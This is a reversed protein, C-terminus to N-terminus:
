KAKAVGTEPMGKRLEGTWERVFARVEDKRVQNMKEFPRYTVKRLVPRLIMYGDKTWVVSVEGDRLLEIREKIWGQLEQFAVTSVQVKDPFTQQIEDFPKGAKAQEQLENALVVKEQKDRDSYRVALSEVVREEPMTGIKRDIFGSIALYRKLYDEEAASLMFREALRKHKQADVAANEKKAEDYLIQEVIFDDFLSGSRWPVERVGMKEMAVSSLVMFDVVQEVPYDKNGISVVMKEYKPRDQADRGIAGTQPIETRVSRGEANVEKADGESLTQNKGAGAKKELEEQRGALLVRVDSERKELGAIASRMDATKKREEELLIRLGDKLEASKALESELLRIRGEAEKLGRERVTEDIAAVKVTEDKKPGDKRSKEQLALAKLEGEAYSLFPSEPSQQKLESFVKKSEEVSGTQILAKGLWFIAADKASSEPFDRLFARFSEVAKEPRYAFYEEYGKDFLEFESGAAHVGSVMLLFASVFVLLRMLGRGGTGPKDHNFGEGM